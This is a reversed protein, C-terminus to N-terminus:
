KDHTPIIAIDLSGDPALPSLAVVYSGQVNIFNFRELPDTLQKVANENTLLVLGNEGLSGQQKFQAMYGEPVKYFDNGIFGRVMWTNVANGRSDVKTVQSHSTELGRRFLPTELEHNVVRPYAHPSDASNQYLVSAKNSAKNIQIRLSKDALYINADDVTAFLTSHHVTILRQLREGLQGSFFVDKTEARPDYVLLLDKKNKGSTSAYYVTESLPIVDDFLVGFAESLSEYETKAPTFEYFRVDASVKHRVFNSDGLFEAFGKDLSDVYEVKGDQSLRAVISKKKTKADVISDPTLIFLNLKANIKFGIVPYKESRELRPIDQHMEGSILDRQPRVPVFAEEKGYFDLQDFLGKLSIEVRSDFVNNKLYAPKIKEVSKEAVPKEDLVSKMFGQFALDSAIAACTKQSAKKAAYVNFSFAFISVLLITLKM